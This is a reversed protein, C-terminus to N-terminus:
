AQESLYVLQEERARADEALVTQNCDSSHEVDDLIADRMDDLDASHLIQTGQSIFQFGFM